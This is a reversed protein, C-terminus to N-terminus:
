LGVHFPERSSQNLREAGTETVLVVDGLGVYLYRPKTGPVTIPPHIMAVVGPELLTMNTDTFYPWEGYDLGQGHGFRGWEGDGYGLRDASARAAKCVDAIPVGPKMSEIIEDQIERCAGLLTEMQESPPGVTGSRVPQVFYGNKMLYTNINLQDGWELKRFHPGIDMLGSEVNNSPGSALTYYASDAGRAKAYRELEASLEYGMMGPKLVDPILEFVEDSLRVTDRMIEIEADSKVYRLRAVIDEVESMRDVGLHKMLDQYVPVPMNELGAIGYNKSGLSRETLIEKIEQGFSKGVFESSSGVTKEDFTSSIAKPDPSSVLRIDRMWSIRSIFKRTYEMGPCLLVAEGKEPVLVITDTLLDFNSWNSLYGVHGTQYWMHIKPGSYVLLAGLGNEIVFDRVKEVRAECEADSITLPATLKNAM